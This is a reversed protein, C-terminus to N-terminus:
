DETPIKDDVQLRACWIKESLIATAMKSTYIELQAEPPAEFLLRQGPFVVREFYWEAINAIRAIQIQNSANVYVCLRQRSTQLNADAFDQDAM